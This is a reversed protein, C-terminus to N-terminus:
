RWQSMPLQRTVQRSLMAASDLRPWEGVNADFVFMMDTISIRSRVLTYLESLTGTLASLPIVNCISRPSNVAITPGEPDPLVVSRLMKPPSSSGDPPETMTFPVLRHFRLRDCS